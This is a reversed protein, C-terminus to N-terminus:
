TLPRVPRSIKTMESTGANRLKESSTYLGRKEEMVIQRVGIDKRNKTVHNCDVHNMLVQPIYELDDVRWRARRRVYISCNKGKYSQIRKNLRGYITKTIVTGILGAAM